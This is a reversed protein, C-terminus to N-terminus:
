DSHYKQQDILQELDHRYIHHLFYGPARAKVDRYKNLLISFHPLNYTWSQNGQIMM